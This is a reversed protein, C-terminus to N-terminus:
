GGSTTYPVAASGAPLLPNTFTLTLTDGDTETGAITATYTNLPWDRANSGYVDASLTTFNGFVQLTGQKAFLAPVWLGEYPLNAAVISDALMASVGLPAAFPAAQYQVIPDQM